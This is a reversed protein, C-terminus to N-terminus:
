APQGALSLLTRNVAWAVVLGAGLAPHGALALLLGAALFCAAQAAYKGAPPLPVWAKPSCFTGWVAAILLPAGLGAALRVALGAHLTFGWWGAAVLLALELLFAFALLVAKM